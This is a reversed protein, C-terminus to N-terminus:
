SESEAQEDLKDKLYAAKDARRVAALQEIDTPAQEARARQEQERESQVARLQQTTPEDDSPSMRQSAVRPNAGARAPTSPGAVDRRGLTPM